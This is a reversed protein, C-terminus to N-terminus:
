FPEQCRKQAWLLDFLRELHRIKEQSSPGATHVKNKSRATVREIELIDHLCLLMFTRESTSGQLSLLLEKQLMAEIYLFDTPEDEFTLLTDEVKALLFRHVDAMASAGLKEDKSLQRRLEEAAATVTKTRPYESLYIDLNANLCMRM